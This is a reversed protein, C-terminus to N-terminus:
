KKYTGRDLGLGRVSGRGWVGPMNIGGGWWGEGVLVRNFWGKGQASVFNPGWPSTRTLTMGQGCPSEEARHEWLQPTRHACAALLARPFWSSFCIGEGEPKKSIQDFHHFYGFITPQQNLGEGMSGLSRGAQSRKYSTHSRIDCERPIRQPWNQFQTFTIKSKKAESYVTQFIPLCIVVSSFRASFNLM